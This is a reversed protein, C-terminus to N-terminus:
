EPQFQIIKDMDPREWNLLDAFEEPVPSADPATCRVFTHRFTNHVHRWFMERFLPELEELSCALDKLGKKWGLLEAGKLEVMPTTSRAIGTPRVLIHDKDFASLQEAIEDAALKFGVYLCHKIQGDSWKENAIAEFKDVEAQLAANEKRLDEAQQRYDNREAVVQNFVRRNEADIEANRGTDGSGSLLLADFFGTDYNDM